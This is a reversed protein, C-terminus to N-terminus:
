LRITTNKECRNGNICQWHCKHDKTRLLYLAEQDTSDQEIEPTGFERVFNSHNRCVWRESVQIQRVLECPQGDVTMQCCFNWGYSLNFHREKFTFKHRGIIETKLEGVNIKDEVFSVIRNIRQTSIRIRTIGGPYSLLLRNSEHSQDNPNCTLLQYLQILKTVTDRGQSELLTQHMGLIWEAIEGDSDLGELSLFGNGLNGREILRGDCGRERGELESKRRSKADLVSMRTTYNVHAVNMYAALPSHLSANHISGYSVPYEDCQNWSHGDKECVRARGGELQEFATTSFSIFSLTKTNSHDTISL